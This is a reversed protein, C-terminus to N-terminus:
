HHLLSGVAISLEPEAARSCLLDYLLAYHRRNRKLGDATWVLCVAPAPIDSRITVLTLRVRDSLIEWRGLADVAIELTGSTDGLGEVFDM